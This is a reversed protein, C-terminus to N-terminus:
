SVDVTLAAGDQSLSGGAAAAGYRYDRQATLATNAAAEANAQSSGQGLARIVGSRRGTGGIIRKELTTEYRVAAPVTSARDVTTSSYGAAVAAAHNAHATPM